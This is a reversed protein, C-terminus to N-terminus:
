CSSEQETTCEWCLADFNFISEMQEASMIEFSPNLLANTVIALRWLPDASMARENRSIFFRRDSLSTGKVEIKLTEGDGEVFLDYGCNDKQRDTVSYGARTYHETVFDVAAIEVRKRSDADPTSPSSIDVQVKDRSSLFLIGDVEETARDKRHKDIVSPDQSYSDARYHGLYKWNNKSQKVYVPVYQQQELFLKANSVIRPGKGVVVIEPAEPNLLTTIALGMVLNNKTRIYSDGGALESALEETTLNRM